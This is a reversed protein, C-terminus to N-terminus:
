VPEEWRFVALGTHLLVRGFGMGNGLRRGPLCDLTVHCSKDEASKELSCISQLALIGPM